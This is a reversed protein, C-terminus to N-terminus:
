YYFGMFASQVPLYELDKQMCTIWSEIMILPAEQEEQWSTEQGQEKIGQRQMPLNRWLVGAGRDSDWISVASANTTAHAHAHAYAHAYAYAYVYAYVYAIVIM